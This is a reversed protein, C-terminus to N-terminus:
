RPPGPRPTPCTARGSPAARVLPPSGTAIERDSRTMRRASAMGGPAPAAWATFKGYATVLTLAWKTDVLQIAPWPLDITRLVNVLHM